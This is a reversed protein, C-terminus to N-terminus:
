EGSPKLKEYTFAVVKLRTEAFRRCEAQYPPASCKQTVFATVKDILSDVAGKGKAMEESTSRKLVFQLSYLVEMLRELNSAFEAAMLDFGLYKTLAQREVSSAFRADDVGPNSGLFERALPAMTEIGRQTGEVVLSSCGSGFLFALHKANLADHLSERVRLAGKEWDFDEGGKPAVVDEGGKFFSFRARQAQADAM